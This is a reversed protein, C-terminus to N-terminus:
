APRVRPGSFWGAPQVPKKLPPRAAAPTPGDGHRRRGPGGSPPHSPQLRLTAPQGLNGLPALM